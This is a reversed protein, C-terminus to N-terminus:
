SFEATADKKLKSQALLLAVQKTHESQVWIDQNRPFYNGLLLM